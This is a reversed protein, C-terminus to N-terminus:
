GAEIVPLHMNSLPNSYLIPNSKNSRIMELGSFVNTGTEFLIWLGIEANEAQPFLM